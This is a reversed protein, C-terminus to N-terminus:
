IKYEFLLKISLNKFTNPLLFIPHTEGKADKWRINVDIYKIDGSGTLSLRRFEATPTYSYVNRIDSGVSLPIEFDTLIKQSSEASLGINSFQNNLANTPYFIPVFESEVPLTSSLIVISQVQAWNTLTQYDQIIQLLDLHQIKASVTGNSTANQSITANNADIFATITTYEDFHDGSITAGVDHITFLGASTIATSNNSTGVQQYKPCGSTCNLDNNYIRLKVDKGNPSSFSFYDVDFSEFFKYLNSNLHIDINNIYNKQVILSFLSTMPDYYMYPKITPSISINANKLTNFATEFATNIMDIFSTFSFIYYYQEVTSPFYSYSSVYNIFVQYDTNTTLDSLTISFFNNDVTRSGDIGNNPYIFIPIANGPVTARIVSLFYNKPNSIIVDNRFDSFIAEVVQTQGNGFKPKIEINYYVNSTFM